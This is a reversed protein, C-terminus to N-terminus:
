FTYAALLPYVYGLSIVLIKYPYPYIYYYISGIGYGHLWGSDALAACDVLAIFGAMAM